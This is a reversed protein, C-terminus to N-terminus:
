VNNEDKLKKWKRKQKCYLPELNDKFEKVIDHMEKKITDEEDETYDEWIISHLKKEEKDKFSDLYLNKSANKIQCILTNYKEFLSIVDERWYIRAKNKLSMFKQIEEDYTKIKYYPVLYCLKNKDISFQKGRYFENNIDKEIAELESERWGYYRIKSLCDELNCIKEVIEMALNIEKKGILEKRWTSLAKYAIVLMFVSVLLELWDVININCITEM